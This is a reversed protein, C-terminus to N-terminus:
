WSWELASELEELLIFNPTSFKMLPMLATRFM